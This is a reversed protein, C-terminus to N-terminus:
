AALAKGADGPGELLRVLESAPIRWGLRRGGPRVGHLKGERLWRRVTATTTRVRQAVEEVTLMPDEKAM